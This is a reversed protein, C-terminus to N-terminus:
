ELEMLTNLYDHSSRVGALVLVVLWMWLPVRVLLSILVVGVGAIILPSNQQDLSQMACCTM